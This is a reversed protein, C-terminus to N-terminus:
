ILFYSVNGSYPFGHFVFQNLSGAYSRKVKWMLEPLTQAFAEGRVAGCESSVIRRGALNAPGSYQRYGDILDSFDLSECEPADVSPINALQHTNTSMFCVQAILEGYGNPSQIIDACLIATWSIEGGM